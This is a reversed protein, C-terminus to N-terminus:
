EEEYDEDSDASIHPLLAKGSRRKNLAPSALKDVIGRLGTLGAAGAKVVLGSVGVEYLMQVEAATIGVPVLVLLPKGIADAFRRVMMLHQWTISGGPKEGLTILAAGVPLDDITHALDEGLSGEVKIVCGVEDKDPVAAVGDAPFVVFDGDLKNVKKAEKAGVGGLWGGWPIDPVAKAMDTLRAAGAPSLDLPILGADAGAACGAAGTLDAEDLSAVLLMKAPPAEIGGMRFGMPQPGGQTIRDLKDIFASM